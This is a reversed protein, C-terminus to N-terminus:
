PSSRRSRQGRGAGAALGDTPWRRRGAGLAAVYVGLLSCRRGPRAAAGARGAALAQGRTAAWAEGLRSGAVSRPPPPRRPRDDRDRPDPGLCQLVRASASRASRRRRLRGADDATTPRRDRRPSTRRHLDAARHRAGPDGDRGRRGARGLRRDGQPQVPHDPVGRRLHRRPGAAAAADRRAQARRRAHGAAAGLAPPPAARVPPPPRRAGAPGAAAPRRHRPRHSGGPRRHIDAM